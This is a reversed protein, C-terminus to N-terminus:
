MLNSMPLSPKHSDAGIFKIPTEGSVTRIIGDEILSFPSLVQWFVDFYGHQCGLIETRIVTQYCGPVAFLRLILSFIDMSTLTSVRCISPPVCKTHLQRSMKQLPVGLQQTSTIKFWNGLLRFIISSAAPSIPLIKYFLLFSAEHKCTQQSIHCTGGARILRLRSWLILRPKFASHILFFGPHLKFAATVKSTFGM